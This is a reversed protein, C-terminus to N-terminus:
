YDCLIHGMFLASRMAWTAADVSRLLADAVEATSAIRDPMVLV